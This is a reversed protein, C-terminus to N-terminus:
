GSKPLSGSIDRGFVGVDDRNDVGDVGVGDYGIREHNVSVWGDIQHYDKKPKGNLEGVGFLEAAIQGFGNRDSRNTPGARSPPQPLDESKWGGKNLWVAPAAIFKRDTESIRCAEAYREAALIIKEPDAGAKVVSLFKKKSDDPYVHKPYAWYFREALANLSAGSLKDNSLSSPNPNPNPNPGLSPQGNPQGTPKNSAKNKNTKTEFKQRTSEGGKASNERNKAIKERIKALEEIARANFLCGDAASLKGLNLLEGVAKSLRGRSMGARLALERERGEYIVADGRDYQLMLVITYVSIMDATMGVTGNLFDSPFCDFHSVGGM